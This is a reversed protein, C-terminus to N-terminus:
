KPTAPTRFGSRQRKILTRVLWYMSTLLVLLVPIALVPIGMVSSKRIFNPFVQMQGTFFSGTAILMAFCMRWLHRILRQAGAIQGAWILRLDLAACIFSITGFVLLAQPPSNKTILTKPDTLFDFWLTLSYTGLIAASLALGELIAKSEKVTRKTVLWSTCVLYATFIAVVGTVHDTRLFFSVIAASTTMVLMSITFVTGSKRHIPSGKTAYMAVAGSMIAMLGAIIHIWKM